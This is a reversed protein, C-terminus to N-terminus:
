INLAKSIIESVNRSLSPHQQIHELAKRLANRQPADFRAWNDFARALRAAIEPNIQDLALVQEAWFDYGEPGHVGELNNLCFQFILARARNPNRLSFAPHVMLARMTEVSTSPAIAQLTFWKDMVLADHQWQEYFHDLAKACEASDSYHVLVSLGGMRDTMNRAGYYQELALHEAQPHGGAMLSALALNKLARRGSSLPDPRYSEGTDAEMRYTALWQEALAKGLQARLFRSAKVVGLPNMPVTKELLERESPLSLVRAKYAATLATDDLLKRWTDIFHPDVNPAAGLSFAQVLALLQRYALERSAEWRAFPDTDHQALLALDADNRDFEVIVPASFHRLLSPVPPQTIHTFTWTQEEQCLELLITDFTKGQHTIALAQGDRSLLGMAFPIHLPPKPLPPISLKEIGVPGNHQRLTVSCTQDNANYSLAVHVRPTGAQSYWRRFIDFNKGPNHRTYVSEMASVFDDCTVAAGDHRRFYEDLGARFGEEGLLTHQMRIVEAGKEYVTATYFNGIEQYSEPRIPHAMPGADEPFQALRLTSVDDIRKVARASDAEAGSLGQAMMDASFEQDRFVTLGEKLSLQFWDRCTVRNGTWNHFYEHGIVAEIARYASDTATDADALVYAANFVNLGKNEMAGMNFDRAAVIMFRDLDLELGFRYEDWKISRDLCDLAWETKNKTGTDSYVQLLADRGSRTQITQERCDFDGAVLAFLYSPKPHPDEWVAEHRGDPLDHQELLNGNSLLLPFRQKDARMRVRYRSMVDPRDPFWTIRRFGEAECQTFLKDGSVYLGMLSSNQQPQCLSTISLIFHSTDPFIVLTDEQLRYDQATLPRGNLALSELQLDQGHLVLPELSQAAQEFHLQASVRTQAPDLDFDLEVRPLRYPYPQYDHRSITPNTDTRMVTSLYYDSM